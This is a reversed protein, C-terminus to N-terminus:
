PKSFRVRAIRGNNGAVYGMAEGPVTRFTYYGEDSLPQWNRGGDYSIDAGAKGVALVFGTDDNAVFQACSRFGRTMTEATMWSLGGDVTYAAVNTNIEPQDYVGGVLVGERNNKFAVSFIGASAEGRIMPPNNVQWTQGFDESYFVRATTGGSVMWAKGTPLFEICSNSAAFNAEGAEARPIQSVQRWSEGGDETRLVVFKGDVPDSVALGLNANAFKLSNFFLGSTTDAYVVRWSDGGDSTAYAFDPGAIGFVMASDANWAHISRFDNEEAGPIQSVNWTEGGDLSRVVTGGSGSAWIVNENLVMLARLSAKTPVNLETFSVAMPLQSNTCAAVFLAVVFTYLLKKM